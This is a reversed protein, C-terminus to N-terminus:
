QPPQMLFEEVPALLQRIAPVDAPNVSMASSKWEEDSRDFYRRSISISRLPSKDGDRENEFVAVSLHSLERKFIPQSM